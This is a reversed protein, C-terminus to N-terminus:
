GQQRLLCSCHFCQFPRRSLWACVARMVQRHCALHGAVVAVERQWKTEAASSIGGGAGRCVNGGAGDKAGACGLGRWGCCLVLKLSSRLGTDEPFAHLGALMHLMIVM